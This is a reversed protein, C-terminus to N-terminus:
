RWGCPTLASSLVSCSVGIVKPYYQMRYFCLLILIPMLISYYACWPENPSLYVKKEKETFLCSKIFWTICITKKWKCTKDVITDSKQLTKHSWWSSRSGRRHLGVPFIGTERNDGCWETVITGQFVYQLTM